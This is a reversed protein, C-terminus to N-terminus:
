LDKFIRIGFANLLEITEFLPLGMVGSHSGQLHEVFAAGLGQIAYAGAKDAPEGTQWYHLREAESLKRLRVRSTQVVCRERSNQVLAVASYVLHERGSLRALMSLGEARDGPKGLMDNDIVVTTDAGLVPQTAQGGIANLGARAKALALRQVYDLPAEAALATEDIPADIREFRIGIQRLLERRRPSGSALYLQITDNM